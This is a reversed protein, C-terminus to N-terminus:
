IAKLRAAIEMSEDIIFGQEDAGLEDEAQRRFRLNLGTDFLALGKPHDILYAPIPSKVIEDGDGSIFFSKTSQFLGCTFAILKLGSMLGIGERRQPALQASGDSHSPSAGG